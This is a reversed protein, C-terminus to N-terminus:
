ILDELEKSLREFQESLAAIEENLDDSMGAQSSLEMLTRYRAKLQELQELKQNLTDTRRPFIYAQARENMEKFMRVADAFDWKYRLFEDNKYSISFYGNEPNHFSVYPFYEWRMQDLSDNILEKKAEIHGAEMNLQAIFLSIWTLEMDPIEDPNKYIFINSVLKKVGCDTCETVDWIHVAYASVYIHGEPASDSQHWQALRGAIEEESAKWNHEHNDQMEM